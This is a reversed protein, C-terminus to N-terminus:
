HNYTDRFNAETSVKSAGHERLFRICKNLAELGEESEDGLGFASDNMSIVEWSRALIRHVSHSIVALPFTDVINRYVSTTLNRLKEVNIKRKQSNIVKVAASLGILIEGLDERIDENVLSCIVNRAHDSSFTHFANGTVMDGPNGINLALKEWLETKVKLRAQDCREKEEKTLKVPKTASWWKKHSLERTILDMAWCFSRIKSHCVPINKTLDSETIPKDCIGQRTAYDGKSKVIEGTDPDTLSVALDKPSEISRKIVFGAEIVTPSHCQQQSNTYMSCYCGGLQLLNTVMKGDVMSLKAKGCEAIVVGWDFELKVGDKKILKVEEELKPM